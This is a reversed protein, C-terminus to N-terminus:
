DNVLEDEDLEIGCKPCKYVKVDYNEWSESPREDSYELKIKCDPCKM